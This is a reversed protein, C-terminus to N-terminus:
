PTLESGVKLLEYFDSPKLSAGGVLAGDIDPLSLLGLANGPKVSGGYQIILSKEDFGHKSGLHERIFAHAEQAQPPSAVVGTGIAWVPEYAIIIDSQKEKPLGKLGEDLQAKLVEFTKNSEREELTEGICFVVELGLSLALLTKENILENSENFVTRRESHGILVFDLELDKLTEPSTDGTFAGSNKHSCNQGGVKIGLTLAKEKVLSLHPFQPAIGAQCKLEALKDDELEEFFQYIDSTLQNMKWNGYIHIKRSM